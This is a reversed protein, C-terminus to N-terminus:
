INPFNNSNIDARPFTQSFGNRRLRELYKYIEEDNYQPMQDKDCMSRLTCEMLAFEEELSTDFVGQDDTNITVFQSFGHESRFMPYFRFIPHKEYLNFPGILVNSSLNCEIGIRRQAIEYQMGKQIAEAMKIYDETIHIVEREEGNSRAKYDFHYMSYLSAASANGRVASFERPHNFERIRSRGYQSVANNGLFSFGSEYEDSDYIGFRYLEPDDGRLLWSNYYDCIQINQKYIEYILSAAKDYLKQKFSSGLNINLAKAKNLAWVINDLYDQKTLVIWHNKLTYYEHVDVGLALAHGLREGSKMELFILAEDIARLGDIIDLFDEGVHYTACLKPQLIDSSYDWAQSFETCVFNRLFRFETAFVEPRCGIEFTCADIGRIRTSLWNYRELAHAVSFAQAKSKARLKANRPKNLFSLERERGTKEPIKPFHLVYFWEHKLGEAKRTESLQPIKKNQLFTISDDIKRIAIRQEFSSTKPGVRAELSKIRNRKIGDNISLNKAELAYEPFVEFIIDKRDQYKAFNKFGYRGNSQIIEHRFQTKILIYLYFLDTFGLWAYTNAKGSFIVRFSDYLFKREGSLSRCPSDNHIESSIITYDFIKEGGGIQKFKGCEGHLIKATDTLNELDLSSITEIRKVLNSFYKVSNDQPSLYDFPFRQNQLWLFLVVRLWCACFLKQKWSMQNDSIGLSSYAYLNEEFTNNVTEEKFKSKTMFFKTIRHPHNMLCIWSLDFGRTSGNLHFHNEALGRNLVEALRRDDTGILAPWGFFKFERSENVGIYALHAATLLDQGLQLYCSRWNLRENQRCIPIASDLELVHLTYEPLLAFVSEGGCFKSRWEITRRMNQYLGDVEEYTLNNFYQMAFSRYTLQDPIFNEFRPAKKPNCYKSYLDNILREPRFLGFITILHDRLIRM